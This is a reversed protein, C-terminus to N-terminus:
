SNLFFHGLRDNSCTSVVNGLEFDTRNRFFSRLMQETVYPLETDPAADMPDRPNVIDATFNM